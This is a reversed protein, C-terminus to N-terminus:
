MKWKKERRRTEEWKWIEEIRQSEGRMLHKWIESVDAQKRYQKRLEEQICASINEKM